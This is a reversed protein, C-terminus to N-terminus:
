CGVALLAEAVAITMVSDDTFGCDGSFLEFDKTKDGRDFEFPSGIIDGLIAGYMIAEQGWILEPMENRKTVFSTYCSIQVAQDSDHRCKEDFSFRRCKKILM